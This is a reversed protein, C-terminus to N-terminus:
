LKIQRVQYIEPLTHRFFEGDPVLRIRSSQDLTETRPVFKTKKFDSDAATLVYGPSNKCEISVDFNALAKLFKPDPEQGHIRKYECTQGDASLQQSPLCVKDCTLGDNNLQWTEPCGCEGSVPNCYECSSNLCLDPSPVDSGPSYVNFPLTDFHFVKSERRAVCMISISGDDNHEVILQGSAQADLEVFESADRQYISKCFDEFVKEGTYFNTLTGFQYNFCYLDGKNGHIPSM